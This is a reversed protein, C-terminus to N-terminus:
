PTRRCANWARVELQSEGAGKLFQGGGSSGGKADLGAGETLFTSLRPLMYKLQAASVQLKAERTRARQEFIFLILMTRDIVQWILSPSFM